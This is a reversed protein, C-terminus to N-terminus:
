RAGVQWRNVSCSCRPWALGNISMTWVVRISRPQLCHSAPKGVMQVPQEDMCVVPRREDYPEEYTSLVDEMAAVYEGDAKPPIM